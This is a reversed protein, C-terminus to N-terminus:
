RFSLFFKFLKKNYATEPVALRSKAVYFVQGAMHKYNTKIYTEDDIIVATPKQLAVKVVFRKPSPTRSIM